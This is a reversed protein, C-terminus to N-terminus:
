VALEIACRADPEVGGDFRRRLPIGSVLSRREDILARRQPTPQVFPGPDKQASETM